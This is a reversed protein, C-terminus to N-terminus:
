AGASGPRSLHDALRAALQLITFTPNASGACPFVAASLVSLDPVEHSQLNGDVVSSNADVGMRVSGSPHYFDMARDSLKEGPRLQDVCKFPAIENWGARVWFAKIRTMMAQLTDEDASTPAWRVRALPIGFRDYQDALDICNSAHPEQEACFELRFPVDEPVFLQRNYLRWFASRGILGGHRWLSIVESASFRGRQVQRAISKVSALPSRELDMNVFAFASRVRAESQAGPSLEFHVSRRINNIFHYAFLRNTVLAHRRSIMAATVYLHDQFYRGLATTKGLAAGGSTRRLWLLLRTTEITGAAVVFRKATVQIQKGSLHRAVVSRLRKSAPEYELATVTAHKWVEIRQSGALEKRLSRGLNARNFSSWKPWRCVIDDDHAAYDAVPVMDFASHDLGFLAEVDGTFRGLEDASIPWGVENLYPRPAIDSPSLPICRGSWLQSSGGIGRARGKEAGSWRGTVEEIVNLAGTEADHEDGGSELVVSSIGRDALRKALVLAAMGGGIVCVEASTKAPAGENRSLNRITV